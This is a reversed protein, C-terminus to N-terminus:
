KQLSGQNPDLQLHRVEWEKGGHAMKCKNIFCALQPHPPSNSSPSDWQLIVLSRRNETKSHPISTSIGCGLSKHSPQDHGSGRPSGGNTQLRWLPLISQCSFPHHNKVTLGSDPEPSLHLSRCVTGRSALKGPHSLVLLNNGKIASLLGQVSDRLSAYEFENLNQMQPHSFSAVQQFNSGM